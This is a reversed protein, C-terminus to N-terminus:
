VWVRRVPRSGSVVALWGDLCCRAVVLVGSGQYWTGAFPDYWKYPERGPVAFYKNCFQVVDASTFEAWDQSTAGAAKIAM